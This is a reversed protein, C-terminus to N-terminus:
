DHERQQRQDSLGNQERLARHAPPRSMNSRGSMSHSSTKAGSIATGPTTAIRAAM